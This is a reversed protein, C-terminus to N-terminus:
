DAEIYVHTLFDTSPRHERPCTVWDGKRAFPIQLDALRVWQWEMLWEWSAGEVPERRDNIVLGLVFPDEGRWGLAHPCIRIGQGKCYGWLQERHLIARQILAFTELPVAPAIDDGTRSATSATTTSATM